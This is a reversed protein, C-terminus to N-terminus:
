EAIPVARAKNSIEDPRLVSHLISQRLQRAGSTSHNLNQELACAAELQKSCTAVIQRQVELPPLPVPV